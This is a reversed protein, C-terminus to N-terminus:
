QAVKWFFSLVENKAGGPAALSADVAGLSMGNTDITSLSTGSVLDLVWEDTALPTSFYKGMADNTVVWNAPSGTFNVLPFDFTLSPITPDIIVKGSVTYGATALTGDANYVDQTLTAIVESGSAAFSLSASSAIASTAATWVWGNSTFDTGFTTESTWGGAGSFDTWDVFRGLNMKFTKGVLATKFPKLPDSTAGAFQPILHYVMYQPSVPDRVGVWMGTIAGTPSKEISTIRWQNKTSTTLAVWGGSIIFNPTFGTFTYIGKEDLTYTGNTSTGTPDVYVVTNNASNMSMSFNAYSAAVSSSFGTWSPYLDASTWGTNMSSGDLNSWNFPTSPSLVWKVITSSNQSIETQWGTPLTPQPEVGVYTSAYDKSVYNYVDWWPGQVPDTRMFALTLRSSTLELVKINNSWNSVEFIKTAIRLVTVDNTSLTHNTADLYYTGSPIADTENPKVVTLHPGNILDFTMTGSLDTAVAGITGNGPDWNIAYKEFGQEVSPDAYSMFGAAYGYKGNDPIWTKSKGVGGSLNTWLPDNVYSLNTTTITIKFTDAQVLGGACEVGYIFNYNGPFAIRVTDNVKISKGLPTIWQPTLGPTLSKLVIKNPDKSDPIISYKLVSKDLVTGLQFADPSCATFLLALGFFAFLIKIKNKM